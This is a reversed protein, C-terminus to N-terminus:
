AIFNRLIFIINKHKLLKIESLKFIVAYNDFIRSQVSAVVQNFAWSKQQM